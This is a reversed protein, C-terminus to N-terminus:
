AEEPECYPGARYCFAADVRSGPGGEEGYDLVVGEEVTVRWDLIRVPGLHDICEETM